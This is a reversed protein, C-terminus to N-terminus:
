ELTKKDKLFDAFLRYEREQTTLPGALARGEQDKPVFKVLGYSMPGVKDVYDAIYETTAVHILEPWQAFPLGNLHLDKLRNFM